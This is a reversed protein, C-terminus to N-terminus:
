VTKRSLNHCWFAYYLCAVSIIVAPALYTHVVLFWEGHRSIVFYLAVLRLLNVLYMLLTGTLLGLAKRRWAAPAALIAAALMFIAGSGDCGRVIELDVLGSQVHHGASLVNEHPAALAVLKATVSALGLPYIQERLFQDPLMFYSQDFLVYLALFLAVRWSESNTSMM